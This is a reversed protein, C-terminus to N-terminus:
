HHAIGHAVHVGIADLYSGSRGFFGVIKDGPNVTVAFPNGAEQGYPGYTRINSQFKLSGIVGNPAWNATYVHGSVNTIFESAGLPIKIPAGGGNGGHGTAKITEGNRCYEVVISDICSGCRITIERVGDFLIGDDWHGGGRGGYCKSVVNTKEELLAM